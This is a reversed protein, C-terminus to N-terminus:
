TSEELLFLLSIASSDSFVFRPVDYYLTKRRPRCCVCENENVPIMEYTDGPNAHKEKTTEKGTRAQLPYLHFCSRWNHEIIKLDEKDEVNSPIDLVGEDVWLYERICKIGIWKEPIDVLPVESNEVVSKGKDKKSFKFVFTRPPSM